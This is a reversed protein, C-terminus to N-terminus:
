RMPQSRELQDLAAQLDAAYSPQSREYQRIRDRLHTIATSSHNARRRLVLSPALAAFGQDLWGAWGAWGPPLRLTNTAFTM